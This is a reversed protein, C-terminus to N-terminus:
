LWESLYAAIIKFDRMGAKFGPALIRTCSPQKGSGPMIGCHLSFSRRYTIRPNCSMQSSFSSVRWIPVHIEKHFRVEVCPLTICVFPLFQKRLCMGAELKNSNRLGLTRSQSKNFCAPYSSAWIFRESNNASCEQDKSIHLVPLKINRVYKTKYAIKGYLVNCLRLKFLGGVPRQLQMDLGEIYAARTICDQRCVWDQM